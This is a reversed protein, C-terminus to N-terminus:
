HMSSRNIDVICERGFPLSVYFTGGNATGIELFTQPKKSEICKALEILENKNQWPRLYKATKSFLLDVVEEASFKKEQRLKLISKISRSVIIKAVGDTFQKGVVKKILKKM